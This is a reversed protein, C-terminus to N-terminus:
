MRSCPKMTPTERGGIEEAGLCGFNRSRSGKAPHYPAKTNIDLNFCGDSNSPVDQPPSRRNEPPFPCKWIASPVQLGEKDVNITSTSSALGGSEWDDVIGQDRWRQLTTSTAQGTVDEDILLSAFASFVLILSAAVALYRPSLLVVPKDEPFNALVESEKRYARKKAM